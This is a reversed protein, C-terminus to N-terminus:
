SYKQIKQLATKISQQISAALKDNLHRDQCNKRAYIECNKQTVQFSFRKSGMGM